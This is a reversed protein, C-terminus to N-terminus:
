KRVFYDLRFCSVLTILVYKEPDGFVQRNSSGISCLTFRDGGCNFVSKTCISNAQNMSKAISLFSM